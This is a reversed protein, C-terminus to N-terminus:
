CYVAVPEFMAM